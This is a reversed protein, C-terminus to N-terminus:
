GRRRDLIVRLRAAVDDDGERALARRLLATVRQGRTRRLYREALRREQGSAARLGELMRFVARDPDWRLHIAAAALALNADANKQLAELKPVLAARAEPQDAAAVTGVAALLWDAPMQELTSVIDDSAAPDGLRIRAVHGQLKTRLFRVNTRRQVLPLVQADGISGLVLLAERTNRSRPAPWADELMAKALPQAGPPALTSTMGTLWYKGRAWGLLVQGRLSPDARATVYARTTPTACSGGLVCDVVYARVRDDGAEALAMAARYRIGRAVGRGYKKPDIQFLKDHILDLRGGESLQHTAYIAHERLTLSDGTVFPALARLAEERQAADAADLKGVAVVASTKVYESADALATKLLPLGQPDRVDGLVFAANLRIVAQKHTALDDIAEYFASKDLRELAFAINNLMRSERVKPLRALLAKTAKRDGIRGLAYVAKNRVGERKHGMLPVLADVLRNSRLETSALTAEYVLADNDSRLAKRVDGVLTARGMLHRHAWLSRFAVPRIDPEDDDPETAMETRLFRVVRQDSLSSLTQLIAYRVSFTEDSRRYLALLPAVSSPDPMRGLARVVEVRVNEDWDELATQLTGLARRDGLANLMVACQIRIGAEVNDALCRELAATSRKGWELIDPSAPLDRYKVNILVTPDDPIKALVRARPNEARGAAETPAIRYAQVLGLAAPLLGLTLTLPGFWSSFTKM